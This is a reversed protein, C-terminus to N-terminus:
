KSSPARAPLPTQTMSKQGDPPTVFPEPRIAGRHCTGCTVPKSTEEVTSIFNRNIEATMSYMRRAIEKMPKSDDAFRPHLPGGPIVAESERVHCASCRVGLEGSWQEMIDHVQRGTLDKPLVKLNTPSLFTQPPRSSPGAARSQAQAFASVVFVAVMFATIVIASRPKLSTKVSLVQAKGRLSALKQQHPNSSLFESRKM